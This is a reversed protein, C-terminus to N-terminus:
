SWDSSYPIRSRPVRAHPTLGWRTGGARLTAGVGHGPFDMKLVLANAEAKKVPTMRGIRKTTQQRIGACFLM